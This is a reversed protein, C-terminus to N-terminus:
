IGWTLGLGGVLKGDACWMAGNLQSTATYPTPLSGLL